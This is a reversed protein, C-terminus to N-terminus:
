YMHGQPEADEKVHSSKKMHHIKFVFLAAVPLVIAVLLTIYFCQIDMKFPLM